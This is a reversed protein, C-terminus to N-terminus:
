NFSRRLFIILFVGGQERVNQMKISGVRWRLALNIISYGRHKIIKM